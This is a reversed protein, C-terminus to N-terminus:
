PSVTQLSPFYKGVKKTDRTILPKGEADALAGILFDPLVGAKPGKNDEKYARYAKAARFLAEDTYGCRALAFSSVVADVSAADQMDYSFECFALDSVFVPGQIKAKEVETFSWAHYECAADLLDFLISTDVFCTM